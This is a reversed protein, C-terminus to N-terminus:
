AIRRARIYSGSGVMTGAAGAAGQAWSLALNGATTTIVSGQEYAVSLNSASNRTGYTISTAFQHHGFVGDGAPGGSGTDSVTSSVGIRSRGGGAGVPVTWTTKFQEATVAAYKIWMEVWYTANAELALILDPDDAFATTSTRVTSTTKYADLPLTSTLLAATIRQGAFIAPYQSM